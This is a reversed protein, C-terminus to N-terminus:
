LSDDMDESTVEKGEKLKQLKRELRRVQKDLDGEGASSKKVKKKPRKGSSSGEERDHTDKRKSAVGKRGVARMEKADNIEETLEAKFDKYAMPGYHAKLEAIEETADVDDRHGLKLYKSVDGTLKLGKGILGHVENTSTKAAGGGAAIIEPKTFLTNRFEAWNPVLKAIEPSAEYDAPILYGAGGPKKFASFKQFFPHFQRYNHLADEGTTNTRTALKEDCGVMLRLLLFFEPPSNKTAQKVSPTAASAARDRAIELPRDSGAGTLSTVAPVPASTSANAPASQMSPSEYFLDCIFGEEDKKLAMTHVREYALAEPNKQLLESVKGIPMKGANVTLGPRAIRGLGDNKIPSLRNIAAPILKRLDTEYKITGGPIITSKIPLGHVFTESAQSRDSPDSFKVLVSGTTVATKPKENEDESHVEGEDEEGEGEDEEEHDGDNSLGDGHGADEDESTSLASLSSSKRESYLQLIVLGFCRCILKGTKVELNSQLALPVFSAPPDTTVKGAFLKLNAPTLTQAPKGQQALEEAAKHASTRNKDKSNKGRKSQSKRYEYLASFRADNELSNDGSQFLRREINALLVEKTLSKSDAGKLPLDLAGSLAQLRDKKMNKDVAGSFVEKPPAPTSM